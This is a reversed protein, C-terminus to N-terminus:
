ETVVSRCKEPKSTAWWWSTVIYIHSLQYTNYTKTSQWRAQISHVSYVSSLCHMLNTGNCANAHLTQWRNRLISIATLWAAPVPMWFPAGVTKECISRQVTVAVRMCSRQFEGVHYPTRSDSWIWRTKPIARDALHSALCTCLQTETACNSTFSPRPCQLFLM